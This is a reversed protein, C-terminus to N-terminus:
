PAIEKTVFDGEFDLREGITSGDPTIKGDGSVGGVFLSEGNVDFLTADFSLDLTLVDGDNGAGPDNRTLTQGGQFNATFESGSGNISHGDVLLTGDWQSVRVPADDDGEFEVFDGASGSMSNSGLNVDMDFNGIITNEDDVVNLAIFGTTEITGTTPINAEQFTGDEIGDNLAGFATALEAAGQETLEGQVGVGANDPIEVGNEGYVVASDGGGCAALLALSVPALVLKFNSM